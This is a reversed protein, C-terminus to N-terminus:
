RDALAIVVDGSDSPTLGGDGLVREVTYGQARLLEPVSGPGLLHGCGVAVFADGEELLPLLREMWAQNRADLMIARDAAPMESLVAYLQAEDLSLYADRLRRAEARAADPDDILRRLSEVADGEAIAELAAWAQEPSELAVFPVGSAITWEFISRDLRTSSVMGPIPARGEDAAEVEAMRVQMMHNALPGPPITRLLEPPALRALEASLRDFTERGLLRDLRTGRARRREEPTAGAGGAFFRAAERLDIEMAVARAQFLASDLPSPVAQRFTVGIHMTGLLFSDPAGDRSVRYLWAHPEVDIPEAAPEAVETVPAPERAATAPRASAAGCGVSGLIWLVVWTRM